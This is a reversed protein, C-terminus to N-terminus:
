HCHFFEQATGDPRVNFREVQSTSFRSGDSFTGQVNFTFTGNATAGNANFGGWVTFKATFDGRAQSREPERPNIWASPRHVGRGTPRGRTGFGALTQAQNADRM